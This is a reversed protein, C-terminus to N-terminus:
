RRRWRMIVSARRESRPTAYTVPVTAFPPKRLSMPDAYAARHPIFLTPGAAQPSRTPFRDQESTASLPQDGAM